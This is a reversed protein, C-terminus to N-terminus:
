EEFWKNDIMFNLWCANVSIIVVIAFFLRPIAPYLSENKLNILESFIMLFLFTLGYIITHIKIEVKM